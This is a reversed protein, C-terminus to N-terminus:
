KLTLYCGAGAKSLCRNGQQHFLLHGEADFQYANSADTIITIRTLQGNPNHHLLRVPYDKQVDFRTYVQEKLMPSSSNLALVANKGKRSAPVNAFAVKRLAALGSVRATKATAVKAIPEKPTLLETSEEAWSVVGILDFISSVVVLILFVARM